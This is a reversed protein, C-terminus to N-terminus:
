IAESLFAGTMCVLSEGLHNLDSADLRSLGNVDLRLEELGGRFRNRGQHRRSFASGLGRISRLGNDCLSLKRLPLGWRTNSCGYRDSDEATNPETNSQYNHGAALLGARDLDRLNNVNLSLSQLFPTLHRLRELGGRLGEVDLELHVLSRLTEISPEISSPSSASDSSGRLATAILLDATLISTDDDPHKFSPQTSVASTAAPAVNIPSDLSRLLKLHVTTELAASRARCSRAIMNTVPHRCQWCGTGQEEDRQVHAMHSCWPCAGATRACGLTVLPAVIAEVLSATTWLGDGHVEDDGSGSAGIMRGASLNEEDSSSSSAAIVAPSPQLMGLLQSRRREEVEKLHKRLAAREDEHFGTPTDEITLQSPTEVATAAGLQEGAMMAADVARHVEDQAPHRRDRRKCLIESIFTAVGTGQVAQAGFLALTAAVPGVCCTGLKCGRRWRQRDERCAPTYNHEGSKGQRGVDPHETATNGGVHSECKGDIRQVTFDNAINFFDLNRLTTTQLDQQEGVREQQLAVNAWVRSGEFMSPHLEAIDRRRGVGIRRGERRCKQEAVRLCRGRSGETSLYPATDPRNSGGRSPCTGEPWFLTSDGASEGRQNPHQLRSRLCKNRAADRTSEKAQWARLTTVREEKRQRKQHQRIKREAVVAAAAAIARKHERQQRRREASELASTRVRWLCQLVVAAATLRQQVHRRRRERAVAELFLVHMYAARARYWCQLTVAAELRMQAKRQADMRRATDEQEQKRRMEEAADLRLALKLRALRARTATQVAIAALSKVVHARRRAVAAERQHREGVTASEANALEVEFRAVM